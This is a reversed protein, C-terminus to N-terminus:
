KIYQKTMGMKQQVYQELSSNKIDFRTEIKTASINIDPQQIIVLKTGAGNFAYMYDMHPNADLGCSKIAKIRNLDKTM